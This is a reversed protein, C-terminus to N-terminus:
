WAEAQTIGSIITGWITQLLHKISGLVTRSTITLSVTEADEGAPFQVETLALWKVIQARFAWLISSLFTASAIIETKLECNGSIKKGEHSTM